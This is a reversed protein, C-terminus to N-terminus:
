SAIEIAVAKPPNKDKGKAKPDAANLKELKEEAATLSDKLLKIREVIETATEEIPSGDANFGNRKLIGPREAEWIQRCLKSIKQPWSGVDEGLYEALEDETKEIVFLVLNLEMEPVAAHGEMQMRNLDMLLGILIMQRRLSTRRVIFGETPGDDLKLTYTLDKLELSM